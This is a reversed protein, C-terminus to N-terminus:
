GNGPCSVQQWERQWKINWFKDNTPAEHQTAGQRYGNTGYIVVPIM